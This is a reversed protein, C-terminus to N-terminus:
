AIINTYIVYVFQCLACGFLSESKIASMTRNIYVSKGDFTTWNTAADNLKKDLQFLNIKTTNLTPLNVDYDVILSGKRIFSIVLLFWILGVASVIMIFFFYTTKLFFPMSINNNTFVYEQISHILWWYMCEFTINTFKIGSM